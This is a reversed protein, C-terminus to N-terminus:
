FLIDVCLSHGFSRQAQVGRELVDEILSLVAQVLVHPQQEDILVQLGLWLISEGCIGKETNGVPYTELMYGINPFSQSKKFLARTGHTAFGASQM